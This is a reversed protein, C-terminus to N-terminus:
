KYPNIFKVITEKMAKEYKAIFDSRDNAHKRVLAENQEELGKIMSLLRKTEYDFELGLEENEKKKRESALRFKNEYDKRVEELEIKRMNSENEIIEHLREFECSM